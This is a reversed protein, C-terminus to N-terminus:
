QEPENFASVYLDVDLYANIEAAFKSFEPYIVLAPTYGDYIQIVLELHVDIFLEEKLENIVDTKSQFTELLPRLVNETDLTEKNQIEFKWGTYSQLPHNPLNPYRREGVKWALTPQIGLRETIVELPFDDNGSFLIYACLYTKEM